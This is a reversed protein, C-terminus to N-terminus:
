GAGAPPGARAAPVAIDRYPPRGAVASELEALTALAGPRDLEIGPVLDTFM